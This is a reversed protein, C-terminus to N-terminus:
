DFAFEPEKLHLVREDLHPEAVWDDVGTAGIKITHIRADRPLYINHPVSPKSQVVSGERFIEIRPEVSGPPMSAFAMWGEEVVYVESISQHSHSKQWAGEDGAVTMVYGNGSKHMLRFRYEGNPMREHLESIGFDNSAVESSVVSPKLVSM